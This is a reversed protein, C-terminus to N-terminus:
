LTMTGIKLMLKLYKKLEVLIRAATDLIYERQNKTIAITWKIKLLKKSQEHGLM